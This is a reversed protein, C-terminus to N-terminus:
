QTYTNRKIQEEYSTYFQSKDMKEEKQRSFLINSTFVILSVWRVLSLSFSGVFHSDVVLNSQLCAHFDYNKGDRM